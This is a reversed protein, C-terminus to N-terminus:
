FTYKLMMLPFYSEKQAIKNAFNCYLQENYYKAAFGAGTIGGFYWGGELSLTILGAAINHHTLFHASAAIFLSNIIFATVATSRQGVYWYGSGPVVANLLQAKRISKAQKQYGCVIKELYAKSADEESQRCLANFDAQKVMSLLSLKGAIDPEEKEILKLIHAAHELKGLQQYSEYLILLLDEFAPFTEDVCVLDTSEVAFAVEVFKGGLFYSLAVNYEMELRRQQNEHPLLWLARKFGTIARFLDFDKAFCLALFYEKGWETAMEAETLHSFPSSSFHDPIHCFGRKERQIEKPHPPSQIIPEIRNPVRNCAALFLSILLLHSCFKMM